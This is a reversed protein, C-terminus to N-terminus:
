KQRERFTQLVFSADYKTIRWLFIQRSKFLFIFLEGISLTDMM